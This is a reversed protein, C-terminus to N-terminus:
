TEFSNLNVTFPQLIKGNQHSTYTLNTASYKQGDVLYYYTTPSMEGQEEYDKLFDFFLNNVTISM